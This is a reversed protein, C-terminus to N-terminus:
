RTANGDLLPRSFKINFFEILPGMCFATLLTGIGPFIGMIAGALVCIVDTGIRCARFPAVKREALILAWADYASVGLDATFYLSTSFCMLVLAAVLLIVQELMPPEPFMKGFIGMFGEAIMGTLLLNLVTAIGIYHRNVLFVGVLLLGTMVTFVVGYPVGSVNWIGLNLSTFPDTGLDATKFIAISVGTLFVGVFAMIVRKIRKEM